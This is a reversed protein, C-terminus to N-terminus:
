VDAASVFRMSPTALGRMAAHFTRRSRQSERDAFARTVCESAWRRCIASSSPMSAARIARMGSPM